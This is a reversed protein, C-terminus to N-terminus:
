LIKIGSIVEVVKVAVLILFGVFLVYGIRNLGRRARPNIHSFLLTVALCEVLYVSFYVDLSQDSVSLTVTTLIFLFALSIIYRNYIRM